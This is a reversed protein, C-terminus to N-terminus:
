FHHPLLVIAEIQFPRLTRTNCIAERLVRRSREHTLFRRREHGDGM